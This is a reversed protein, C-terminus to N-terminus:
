LAWHWTWFWIGIQVQMSPYSPSGNLPQLGLFGAGGGNASSGHSGFGQPGFAFQKSPIQVQMGSYWPSGYWPHRGSHTKFESQGLSLAQTLCFHTSGQIPVQPIPASHVTEFWAAIQVHGAPVVPLANTSHLGYWPLTWKNYQFKHSIVKRSVNNEVCSDSINQLVINCM